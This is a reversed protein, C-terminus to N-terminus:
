RIPIRPEPKGLLRFATTALREPFEEGRAQSTLPVVPQLLGQKGNFAVHQRVDPFARPFVAVSALFHSPAPDLTQRIRSPIIASHSAAKLTHCSPPGRVDGIM